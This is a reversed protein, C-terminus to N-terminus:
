EDDELVRQLRKVLSECGKAWTYGLVTERAAKGHAARKESNLVYEEMALCVDHPDCAHAEGGVPSFGNPLYYRVTPKVLVSNDPRCFEKFGGIDPVVQPVGVGMQEFQCLGFGEGDATNIGVDAANYFLNVEEDKFSLNQSTVILRNGFLETSVDRMRLERQFLEFLWWGGREGKDCVCLMYLPKTPYKVILETFAMILIDYRKRPQNRNLNLFIFLDTPLQLQRRALDRPMPYCLASSFGHTLVDIPRTIGQSKLCQKWYATFTFIRDADRNLIDLLAQPQMTYVQDCYVWVQFTRPLGAKRIEELFRTVVSLDNYIMVVHPRKRRITDPLAAYGFGQQQQAPPLQKELAVADIVDVGAPYPRFGAPVEPQKQFGFHTLQLWPQKALETLIGHSVKAYGTYQQTHTSVLMFKIKKPTVATATQQASQTTPVAASMSPQVSVSPAVVSPELTPLATPMDGLSVSGIQATDVAAPAALVELGDAGSLDGSSRLIEELTKLYSPISEAGDSM